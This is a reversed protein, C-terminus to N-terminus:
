LLIMQGAEEWRERGLAIIVRYIYIGKELKRGREDTGDWSLQSNRSGASQVVSQLRKVLQGGVTYIGIEVSFAAEPQNHEFSFSTRGSFPNPYNRLHTIRLKEQRAVVFEINATSSNNAVDWARLRLSHRGPALVPLQYQLSGRQYSDKDAAYFDNLVLTNNENGDIVAIIDHGIGNGSTNIGSSDFLRAILLPNEHTLGGNLFLTDNLFLRIDPGTVDKNSVDDRVFYPIEYVGAGDRNGDEAYLSIRARGPNFSIDKPVVFSFRFRGQSVTASGKYLVQTQQQFGTVPSTPDNGLTKVTHPKDYVTPYVTGNFDPVTVGNADAVRGSFQYITLSHLTDNGTLPHDNVSDLKVQWAPIALYMAPDGLLAFKRTNVVDGFGQVTLNKARRVSEGLTLRKGNVPPQLAIKLYNDNIVRNSFAFVLRTTSLLAVAGNRSGTLVAAGLSNKQPDDFPAFDCSATIFLPLKNPNNFRNVEDLGLIASESLREFSGHGSYNFFLTGNYIRNVIADNVAPYRAGGSNSVLAYADLYIKQQNFLNSAASADATLTEADNLHLNNDKDDAVYVTQTRWSGLSEKAHYRIIKDVVTKAENPSRAPIRGVAVQLILSDYLLGFFDDSTYTSLPDLSNDSEYCPVLNTNNKVRNRYDYSGTGFLLLYRPFRSSDGGARDAYMRVFDRIATPDPMGGGFEHFLQDVQVVATRLGERQQHFLALRQAEQFFAPHTVILYDAPPANHLDQNSLKGLAVPTQFATNSFAVYERLQSADNVFVVSAGNVTVPMKVPNFLDSIDWVAVTAASPNAISFSAVANPSVSPWDRFFLPAGANLVLSKRGHLEFWNLWGQANSNFPQFNCNITLSGQSATFNSSTTAATAYHDLFYGSVPTIDVSQVPQNNVSVTFSSKGNVTRGAFSSVLTLPASNVMGSFDAQFNRSLPVGPNAGFEEGYWEKGSSLLNVLDNEYFYRENFSNVAVTPPAITAASQMRKGMGGITIYYFLTDTYLNKHHLFRQQLSDKEWKSSPPAYFLFYDNNDFVGDGGDYMDIANEALDDVGMMGGNGYLRISASALNATNVGLANLFAVDVKYVGEQKVGLKVWGGSALVSHPAYTRQSLGPQIISLLLLFLLSRM